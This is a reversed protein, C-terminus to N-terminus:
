GRAGNLQALSRRQERGPQGSTVHSALHGALGAPQRRPEGHAARGDADSGADAHSGPV